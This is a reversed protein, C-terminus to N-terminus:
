NEMKKYLCRDIKSQIFGYKTFPERIKTHWPKIAVQKFGYIAKVLKCIKCEVGAKTCGEPQSM